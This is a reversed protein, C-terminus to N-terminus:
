FSRGSGGGGGMGGGFGGFGGGGFGGGFGGGRGGGFGGIIPPFFTRNRNSGNGSGGGTSNDDDSDDRQSAALKIIMIFVVITIIITILGLTLSWPDVEEAEATFEGRVTAMIGRVGGYTAEFYDGKKLYDIMYRGIIRDTMIDPLVGEIGYGTAIFVEGAGNANRPKLLLVVGNDKGKKGVGWQELLRTAFDSPASGDLDSVTVVAIQTSTAREFALLSDELIRNQSPTFLGAFDNVLRPPSMPSPIEGAWLVSISYFLTTLLLLARKM